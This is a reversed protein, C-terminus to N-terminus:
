SRLRPCRAPTGARSPAPFKEADGRGGLAGRLGTGGASPGTEPCSLPAPLGLQARGSHLFLHSVGPFAVVATRTTVQVGEGKGHRAQGGCSSM